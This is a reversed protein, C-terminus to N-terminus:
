LVLLLGVLLAWALPFMVLGIGIAQVLDPLTDWALHVRRVLIRLRVGPAVAPPKRYFQSQM